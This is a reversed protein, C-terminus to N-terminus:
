SFNSKGKHGCKEVETKAETETDQLDNIYALWQNQKEVANKYVVLKGADQPDAKHDIEAKAAEEIVSPYTDSYAKRAAQAAILSTTYYYQCDVVTLQRKTAFYDLIAITGAFVAAVIGLTGGILAVWDNLSEPAKFAPM